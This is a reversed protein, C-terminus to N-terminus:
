KLNRLKKRIFTYIQTFPLFTRRLGDVVILNDIHNITHIGFSFHSTKDSTITMYYEEIFKNEDLFIIKNINISSGYHKGSNQSPRYLIGDVEIINGAPRSGNINNKVPNQTHPIYPGFLNESYYIYLKKNSDYGKMTSFIWYKDKYRLITSDLLPLNIIDAKYNISNTDYDYEYCSLKESAAAEPFVYMTGDEIFISPYSLHSKTDIQAKTAIVNNNDDLTGMSIKGYQSNYDYDEYLISYGGVKSKFIFPDAFFQHNNNIPVWTFDKEIKKNQIVDEISVDLIGISWQKLYLKDIIKSLFNM